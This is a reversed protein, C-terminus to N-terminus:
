LRGAEVWSGGFETVECYQLVFSIRAKFACHRFEVDAPLTEQNIYRQCRIRKNLYCRVGYRSWM